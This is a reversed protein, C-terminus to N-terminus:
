KERCRRLLRIPPMVPPRAQRLVRKAGDAQYYAQQVQRMLEQEAQDLQLEANVKQVKARNVQNRTQLGDFIPISLSFGM